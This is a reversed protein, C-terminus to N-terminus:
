LNFGINNVDVGDAQAKAKIEALKDKNGRNALMDEAYKEKTYSGDGAPVSPITQAVTSSSPVPKKVDAQKWAFTSEELKVLFDQKSAANRLLEVIRPDNKDIGADDLIAQQKEAWSKEGAGASPVAKNGGLVSDLKAKIDQLEQDGQMKALAQQKSMGSDVLSDYKAIAGEVSDLRTGYKGLRVDQQSKVTNKIYEQLEPSALVAELTVASSGAQEYPQGAPKGSVPHDPLDDIQPTPNVSENANAM